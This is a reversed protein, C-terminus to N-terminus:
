LPYDYDKHELRNCHTHSRSTSTLSKLSQWRQIHSHMYKVVIEITAQVVTYNRQWPANFPRERKRRTSKKMLNHDQTLIRAFVSSRHQQVRPLKAKICIRVGVICWLVVYVYEHCLKNRFHHVNTWVYMCKCINRPSYILWSIFDGMKHYVDYHKHMQMGAVTNM